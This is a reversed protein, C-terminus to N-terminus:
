DHIGSTCACAQLGYKTLMIDQCDHIGFLCSVCVHGTPWEDNEWDIQSIYEDLPDM